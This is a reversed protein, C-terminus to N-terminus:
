SRTSLRSQELTLKRNELTLIWPELSLRWSERIFSLLVFSLWMNRTGLHVEISRVPVEICKLILRKQELTFKHKEFIIRFRDLGYSKAPDLDSVEM